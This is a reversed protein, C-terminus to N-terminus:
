GGLVGGFGGGLGGGLGAVYGGGLGGVYGGGLRGVYGGGLGGGYANGHRYSDGYGGRGHLNYIVRQYTGMAIALLSMMFLLVGPTTKM